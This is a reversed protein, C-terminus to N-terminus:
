QKRQGSSAMLAQLGDPAMPESIQVVPTNKNIAWQGSKTGGPVYVLVAADGGPGLVVGTLQIAAGVPVDRLRSVSM